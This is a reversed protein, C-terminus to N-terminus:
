NSTTKKSQLISQLTSSVTNKVSNFLGFAEKGLAMWTQNPLTYLYYGGFCTLALTSCILLKKRKFGVLKNEDHADPKNVLEQELDGAKNYWSFSDSPEGQLFKAM